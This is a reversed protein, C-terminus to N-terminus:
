LEIFSSVTNRGAVEIIADDEEMGKEKLFNVSTELALSPLNNEQSLHGLFVREGRARLVQDLIHCAQQNSLHGERSRIREKLYEPYPGYTLMQPCHNSEIYYLDSDKVQEMIREDVIGTDTIVSLKKGDGELVFSVAEASDHYTRVPMIDVDRYTFGVDSRFLCVNEDKIKGLKHEMALYTPYNSFFPIDFRRSLVGVGQAHDSHEHTVLIFDLEKPDVGISELSSQIRKGSAGADILFKSKETEVYLSNGSSGSLLSCFKM